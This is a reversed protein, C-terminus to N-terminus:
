NSPGFRKLVNQLTDKGFSKASDTAIGFSANGPNEIESGGAITRPSSKGCGFLIAISVIAIIKL